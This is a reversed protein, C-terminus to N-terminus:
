TVEPVFIRTSMHIRRRGMLTRSLMWRGLRSFDARMAIKARPANEQMADMTRRYETRTNVLTFGGRREGVCEYAIWM